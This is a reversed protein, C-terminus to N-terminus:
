IRRAPRAAPAPDVVQDLAHGQLLARGQDLLAHIAPHDLPATLAADMLKWPDRSDVVAQKRDLYAGVIAQEGRNGELDVLTFGPMGALDPTPDPIALAYLYHAGGGRGAEPRLDYSFGMMALQVAPFQERALVAALRTHTEADLGRIGWQGAHFAEMLPTLRDIVSQPSPSM